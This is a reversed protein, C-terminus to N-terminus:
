EPWQEIRAANVQALVSNATRGYDTPEWDDDLNNTFEESLTSVIEEADSRSVAHSNQIRNRLTPNRRTLIDELLQVQASSLFGFTSDL